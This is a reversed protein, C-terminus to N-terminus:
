AEIEVPPGSDPAPVEPASGPALRPLPHPRRAREAIGLLQKREMVFHLPEVLRALLVELPRPLGFRSRLRVVLRSRHGALPHLVFTWTGGEELRGAQAAPVVVAPDGIATVLSRGPDVAVVTFGAEPGASAPAARIQDGVELRQWEPVIRDANHFDLGVLRELWDYSYLGARDQGMQVLWPWVAVAPADITIARTTEMSPDLLLDDGPLPMAAEDVSAGWRIAWRRAAPYAVALVVGAMVSRRMTM